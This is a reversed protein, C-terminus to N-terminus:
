TLDAAFIGRSYVCLALLRCCPLVAVAVAVIGTRTRTAIHM